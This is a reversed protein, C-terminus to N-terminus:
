SFEAGGRDHVNKAGMRLYDHPPHQLLIWEEYGGILEQGFQFGTLSGGLRDVLCGSETALQHVNFSTIVRRDFDLRKAPRKSVHRCERGQWGHPEVCIFPLNCLAECLGQETHKVQVTDPDHKREAIVGENFDLTGRLLPGGIEGVM